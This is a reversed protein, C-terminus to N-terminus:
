ASQWIGVACNPCRAPERRASGSKAVTHDRAEGHRCKHTPEGPEHGRTDDLADGLGAQKWAGSVCDRLPKRHGSAGKSRSRKATEHRQATRQAPSVPTNDFNITVDGRSSSAASM